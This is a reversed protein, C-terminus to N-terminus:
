PEPRIPQAQRRYFFQRPAMRHLAEEQRPQSRLAALPSALAQPLQIRRSLGTPLLIPDPRLRSQRALHVQAPFPPAQQSLLANDAQILLSPKQSFKQLLRQSPKPGTAGFTDTQKFNTLKMLFHIYSYTKQKLTALLTTCWLCM